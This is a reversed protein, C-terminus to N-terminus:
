PIERERICRVRHIILSSFIFSLFTEEASLSFSSSSYSVHWASFLLDDHTTTLSWQIPNSILGREVGLLNERENSYPIEEFAMLQHFEHFFHQDPLLRIRGNLSQRKERSRHMLTFNKSMEPGSIRPRHFCNRNWGLLSTCWFSNLNTLPNVHVYHVNLKWWRGVGRPLWRRSDGESPSEYGETEESSRWEWNDTVSQEHQKLGRVWSRSTM